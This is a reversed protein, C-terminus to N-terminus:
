LPIRGSTATCDATHLTARGNKTRIPLQGCGPCGSEEVPLRDGPLLAGTGHVADMADALERAQQPTSPVLPGMYAAVRLTIRAALDDFGQTTLLVPKRRLENSVAGLMPGLEKVQDPTLEPM